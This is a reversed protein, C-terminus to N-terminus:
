EGGGKEQGRRREFRFSAGGRALDDGRDDAARFHRRRIRCPSDARSVSNYYDGRKALPIGRYLGLLTEDDPLDMDRRLDPSVDDEILLAVNRILNRFKEPVSSFGVESVLAEFEKPSM